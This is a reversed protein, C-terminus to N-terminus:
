GCSQNKTQKKKEDEHYKIRFSCQYDMIQIWLKDWSVEHLAPGIVPVLFGQYILNIMQKKILPHSVKVVFNCFDLSSLFNQLEPKDAIDQETIQLRDDLTILKRPLSSYLGSLITAMVPGLNSDNAIYQSLSENTQSIPM